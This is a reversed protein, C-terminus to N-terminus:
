ASAHIRRKEILDLMPATMFTTVLAMLVLMTFIQQNLVGLDYGINLVILEMLGRTNMLVGLSLSDSWALGSIRAAIASGFLKGVIKINDNLAAGLLALGPLTIPFGAFPQITLPLGHVSECCALNRVCPALLQLRQQRFQSGPRADIKRNAM